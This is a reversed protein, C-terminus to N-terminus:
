FKFLKDIENANLHEALSHEFQLKFEKFQKKCIPTMKNSCRIKKILYLNKITTHINAIDM